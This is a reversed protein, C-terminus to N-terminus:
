RGRRPTSATAPETELAALFPAHLHQVLEPDLPVGFTGPRAGLVREVATVLATLRRLVVEAFDTASPSSIAEEMVSTSTGLWLSLVIDTTPDVDAVDFSGDAAGAAVLPKFLHRTRDHWADFLRHRLEANAPKYLLPIYAMADELRASKWATAENLLQQFRQAGTGTLTSASEELSAFLGDVFREVLAGLMDQKSGFYYYFTGKAVGAARTLQDISLADYGVTTCQQLAVDLLEERRIHPPKTVRAM